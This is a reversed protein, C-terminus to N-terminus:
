LGIGKQSGLTFALRPLADKHAIMTKYLLLMASEIRNLETYVPTSQNPSFQKKTGINLSYSARNINELADEIANIERAYILSKVTKEAGLSVNTSNTFLEDLYAKLHALNGIMRNYDVANFYDEETWNTKPEIWAM